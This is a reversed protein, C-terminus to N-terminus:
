KEDLKNVVVEALRLVKDNWYFGQTIESIVVGNEHKADKILEAARMLQPDFRDGISDIPIVGQKELLHDLRTVILTQGKAFSKLVRLEKKFFLRKFFGPRFKNCAEVAAVLRDRVNLLELLVPQLAQRSVTNLEERHRQREQQWDQQQEASADVLAQLSDLASKYQRAETRVETKLVALETFVQTLGVSQDLEAELEQTETQDLLQQFQEIIRSKNIKM